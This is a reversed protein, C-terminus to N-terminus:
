RWEPRVKVHSMSLYIGNMCIERRYEHWMDHEPSLGSDVRCFAAATIQSLGRRLRPVSVSYAKVDVDNWPKVPSDMKEFDRMASLLPNVYFTGPGFRWRLIPISVGVGNHEDM